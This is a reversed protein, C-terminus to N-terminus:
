HMGQTLFRTSRGLTRTRLFADPADAAWPLIVESASQSFTRVPRWSTLDTSEELAYRYGAILGAARSGLAGADSCTCALTVPIRTTTAVTAPRDSYRASVYVAGGPTAVLVCVPGTALQPDPECLEDRVGPLDFWAFRLASAGAQGHYPRNVTYILTGDFVVRGTYGNFKIEGTGSLTPNM